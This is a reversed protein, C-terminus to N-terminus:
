PAQQAPTAAVAPIVEIGANRLKEGLFRTVDALQETRRMAPLSNLFIRGYPRSKLRQDCLVVVGFDQTDRILRGVGQKLAIVAQPIQEDFFPNGGQREIADLRAKLVPDDPVAFPLKDIVVVALASGKVDVGEWFSGTGLLVANGFQRFRQLLVDRPADGQVLVPFPATDQMLGALVEAGERLARHSTFLLFARGGSAALVPWAAEVVQRTHRRSAPADLGPPLYLLAQEPYNFPSGFRV